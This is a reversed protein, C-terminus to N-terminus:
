RLLLCQRPMFNGDVAYVIFNRDIASLPQLYDAIEHAVLSVDYLDVTDCGPTPMAVSAPSDKRLNLTWGAQRQDPMDLEICSCVRM